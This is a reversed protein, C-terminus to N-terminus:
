ESKEVLEARVIYRQLATGIPYSTQVTLIRKHNTDQSLLDTRTKEAIFKDYVKYTYQTGEADSVLIEAGIEIKPLLAFITKYKGKSFAFDSSHGFIYMNGEEGVKATGPYQVVGNILAAQFAKENAETVFQIPAAIDLSRIILQNPEVKVPNEKRKEERQNESVFVHSFFYNIQKGFYDFNLVFFIGAALLVFVIAYKIYRFVM